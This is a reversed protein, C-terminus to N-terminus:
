AGHGKGYIVGFAYQCRLTSVAVEPPWYPKNTFSSLKSQVTGMM